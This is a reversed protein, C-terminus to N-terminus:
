EGVDYKTASLNATIRRKRVPKKKNTNNVVRKRVQNTQTRAPSRAHEVDEDDFDEAISAEYEVEKGPNDFSDNATSSDLSNLLDKAMATSNEALDHDCDDTTVSRLPTRPSPPIEM